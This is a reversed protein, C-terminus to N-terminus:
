PQLKGNQVDGVRSTLQNVAELSIYKGGRPMKSIGLVRKLAEVSVQSELEFFNRFRIFTAKQRGKLFKFYEEFSDLCTEGGYKMWLEEFDGVAREVFDAVGKIQMCPRKVYFLLKEARVPGVLNRRVFSHISRSGRGRECLRIWWKEDSVLIFGYRKDEHLDAQKLVEKFVRRKIVKFFLIVSEVLAFGHSKDFIEM